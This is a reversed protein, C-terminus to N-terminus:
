PHLWRLTEFYDYASTLLYMGFRQELDTALRSLILHRYSLGVGSKSSCHESADATWTSSALHRLSNMWSANVDTM